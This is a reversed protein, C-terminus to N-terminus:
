PTVSAGCFNTGGGHPFFEESPATYRAGARQTVTAGNLPLDREVVHWVGGRRRASWVLLNGSRPPNPHQNTPESTTPCTAGSRYGDRGGWDFSFPVSKGAEITMVQVFPPDSHPQIKYLEIEDAGAGDVVVIALEPKGDGNIDPAGFIRCGTFCDIPGFIQPKPGPGLNGVNLGLYTNRSDLEPCAAGAKGRGFLYISGYESRESYYNLSTAHCAPFPVGPITAAV